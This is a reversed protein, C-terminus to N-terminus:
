GWGTSCCTTSRARWLRWGREAFAAAPPSPPEFEATRRAAALRPEVAKVDALTADGAANRAMARTMPSRTSGARAGGALEREEASLERHIVSFSADGGAARARRAGARGAAIAGAFQRAVIAAVGIAICALFIRLGQFGGRLCRAGACGRWRPSHVVRSLGRGGAPRRRAMGGRSRTVPACARVRDCREALGPDHTVLALTAGRERPLAFLLEIVGAGPRRTSIARRSM